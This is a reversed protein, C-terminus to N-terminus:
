TSRKKMGRFKWILQLGLRINHRMLKNVWRLNDPTNWTHVYTHAEEELEEIFKIFNDSFNTLLGSIIVAKAM